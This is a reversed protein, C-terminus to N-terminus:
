RLASALRDVLWDVESREIVLPPAIRIVNDHTDKCLVGLAVLRECYPRAGATLEIGVFLGRGRVARVVGSRISRLQEILYGGLAAARMPLQQSTVVRLAARAVACALPNGGYTSGHDGPKLVGLVDRGALIASVPYLGGSLSKGVVLVDPRVDEHQVAFLAGTRGLGTQIEDAMLLIGHRSCVSRVESLYGDPPVIVGAEGQIPEILVACTNETVADEIAAADGFPVISFGPMFPGFGRRYAQENSFSIVGLTRGHFNGACVIITARDDPIGKVAYGWRRAVKVASEVAETGSNMLLAMGLGTLETLERYLLPLQVNRFARSTISLRGAQERCAAVIDPHCHGQNVASYASLCDLYRSGNVDYLWVGEGRELVVDIPSYNHAGRQDELDILTRADLQQVQSNM